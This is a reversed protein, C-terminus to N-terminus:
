EPKKDNIQFFNIMDDNLWLDFLKEVVNKKLINYSGYKIKSFFTTKKSEMAIMDAFEM